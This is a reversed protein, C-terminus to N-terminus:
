AIENSGGGWIYYRDRICMEPLQKGEEEVVEAGAKGKPRGPQQFPFLARCGNYPAADGIGWSLHTYSVPGTGARQFGPGFLVGGISYGKGALERM